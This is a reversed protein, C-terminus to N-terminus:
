NTYNIMPGYVWFINNVSRTLDIDNATDGTSLRRSFSVSYEGLLTNDDTNTANKNLQTIVNIVDNSTTDNALIGNEDAYMDNCVFSSTAGGTSPDSYNNLSLSCIIYDTKNLQNEGFGIGM